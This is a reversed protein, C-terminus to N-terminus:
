PNGHREICGDIAMRRVFRYRRNSVVEDICQSLNESEPVHPFDGLVSDGYNEAVLRIVALWLDDKDRIIEYARTHPNDRHFVLYTEGVEFVGYAGCSSLMVSNGLGWAWFAPSRHGDFDDAVGGNDSATVSGARVGYLEFRAPSEGKLTEVQEFIFTAFDGSEKGAIGVAKAVVISTTKSVLETHSESLHPPPITCALSTMPTGSLLAMMFGMLLLKFKV